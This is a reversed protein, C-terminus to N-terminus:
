EKMKGINQTKGNNEVDLECNKIKKITKTTKERKNESKKKTKTTVIKNEMKKQQEKQYKPQKIKIITSQKTIKM